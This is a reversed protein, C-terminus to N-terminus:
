GIGAAAWVDRHLKPVSPAGWAETTMVIAMRERDQRWSSGLGGDWGYVDGMVAVGFGWGRGALIFDDSTVHATTMAARSAPSLLGGTQLARAFAYFDDITSVLGAAGSPFAPPHSWQGDAPDYVSGDPRLLAGLRETAFFATDRMGLPTFVREHLFVDFPRGTTRAILVGLVDSGTSYLWREGPQAMLPLEGLARMWADPPPFSEPAPPGQGLAALAKAIPSGDFVLGLGLQFTLLDRLTIARRAPVTDDLPGNAVRLVRRNALEPLLADVPEDLRLRGDDVLLLTAAATIPKTMSSIRFIEDRPVGKAEVTVDGGRSILSVYSM